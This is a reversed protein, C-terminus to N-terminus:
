SPTSGGGWDRAGPRHRIVSWRRPRRRVVDRVPQIFVPHPDLRIVTQFTWRRRRPRAAPSVPAHEVPPPAAISPSPHRAPTLTDPPTHGHASMRSLPFSFSEIHDRSHNASPSLSRSSASGSGYLARAQAQSAECPPPQNHRQPILPLAPTPDEGSARASTRNPTSRVIAPPIRFSPDSALSEAEFPGIATAGLFPSPPPNTPSIDETTTPNGASPRSGPRRLTRSQVNRLSSWVAHAARSGSPPQLSMSSSESRPADNASGTHSDRAGESAAAPHGTRRRFLGSAPPRAPSAADETSKSKRRKCSPEGPAPDWMWRVM